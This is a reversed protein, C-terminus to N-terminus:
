SYYLQCYKCLPYVNYELSYYNFGSNYNSTSVIVKVFLTLNMDTISLSLKNVQGGMIRKCCARTIWITAITLSMKANIFFYGWLAIGRNVPNFKWWMKVFLTIDSCYRVRCWCLSICCCLTRFINWCQYLVDEVDIELSVFWSNTIM